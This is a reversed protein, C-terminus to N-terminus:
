DKTTKKAGVANTLSHTAQINTSMRHYPTLPRYRRTTRQVHACNFTEGGFLQIKNATTLSQSIRADEERRIDRKVGVIV